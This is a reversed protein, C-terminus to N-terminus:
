QAIENRYYSLCSDSIVKLARQDSTEIKLRSLTNWDKNLILRLIKVVGPKIELGKETGISAINRDSCKKCIVGGEVSSFYFEEPLLKKQCVACNFLEPKYGLLSFLNWIFYHYILQINYIKFQLNDLKKFVEGILQWNKEDPEQGKILVDLVDSVLYTLALRKLDKRLNRFKELLIADTLTKYARGQIFEIESLYFIDAGSRLKSTIKRIGKGAIELKGFDKTYITLFQDAEGRDEKKIIIGKTRYREFM